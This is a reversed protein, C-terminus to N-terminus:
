DCGCNCYGGGSVVIVVLACSFVPFNPVAVVM